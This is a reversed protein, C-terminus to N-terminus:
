SGDFDGPFFRYELSPATEEESSNDDSQIEAVSKEVRKVRRAECTESKAFKAEQDLASGSNNKKKVSNTTSCKGVDAGNQCQFMVEDGTGRKKKKHTKEKKKCGQGKEVRIISVYQSLDSVVHQHSSAVPNPLAYMEVQLDCAVAELVADSNRRVEVLLCKELSPSLTLNLPKHVARHKNNGCDSKLCYEACKDVKNNALFTWRSDDALIVPYTDGETEWDSSDRIKLADDMSLFTFWVDVDQREEKEEHSRSSTFHVGKISIEQVTTPTRQLLLTRAGLPIFHAGRFQQPSPRDTVVSYKWPLRNSRRGMLVM